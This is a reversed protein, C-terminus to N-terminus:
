QKIMGQTDSMKILTATKAYLEKVKYDLKLYEDVQAIDVSKVSTIDAEVDVFESLNGNADTCFPCIKNEIWNFESTGVRNITPFLFVHDKNCQYKTM